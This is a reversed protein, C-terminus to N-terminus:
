WTKGVHKSWKKAVHQGVLGLLGEVQGARSGLDDALCWWLRRDSPVGPIWPKRKFNSSCHIFFFTIYAMTRGIWWGHRRTRLLLNSDDYTMMNRKWSAMKQSVRRRQPNASRTPCSAVVCSTVRCPGGTMTSWRLTSIMVRRIWPNGLIGMSFLCSIGVHGRPKEMFCSSVHHFMIFCSSVMNDNQVYHLNIHIWAKCFTATTNKRLGSSLQLCIWGAAGPLCLMWDARRGVKLCQIRSLFLASKLHHRLYPVSLDSLM